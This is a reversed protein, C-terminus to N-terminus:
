RAASSLHSATWIGLGESKGLGKPPVACPRGNGLGAYPNLYLLNSRGLTVSGARHREESSPASLGKVGEIFCIITPQWSCGERSRRHRGPRIARRRGPPRRRPRRGWFVSGEKAREGGAPVGEPWTGELGPGDARGELPAELRGPKRVDDGRVAEPGHDDGIKERLADGGFVNLVEDAVGSGGGGLEVVAAGLFTVRLMTSRMETQHGLEAERAARPRSEGFGTQGVLQSADRWATVRGAEPWPISRNDKPALHAPRWFPLARM